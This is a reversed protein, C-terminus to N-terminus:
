GGLYITKLKEIKIDPYFDLMVICTIGFSTGGDYAMPDVYFNVNPFEKLYEYNNVCNLFYGGSLVINNTEGLDLSKQILKKSMELTHYQIEAGINAKEEFSLNGGVNEGKLGYGWAKMNFITEKEHIWSENPIYKGYSAMGMLKGADNGHDLGIYSCTDNFVAGCSLSNSYIHICDNLIEKYYSIKFGSRVPNKNSYHKYIPKIQNNNIKYISDAERFQPEYDTYAGAGDVILATAENFNSGYFASASHFLHHEGKLYLSKGYEIGAKELQNLFANIINEDDKDYKRRYSGFAVIDIYNINRDKLKKIGLFDYNNEHYKIKSLRDEECLYLVKGNQMLCSSSDHSINIGLINIDKDM